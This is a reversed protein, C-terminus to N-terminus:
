RLRNELTSGGSPDAPMMESLGPVADHDHEAGEAAAGAGGVTTVIADPIEPTGEHSNYLGLKALQEQDRHLEVAAYDGPTQLAEFKQFRYQAANPVQPSDVVNPILRPEPPVTKQAFFPQKYAANETKYLFQYIGTCVLESLLITVALGVGWQALPKFNVDREEHGHEVSHALTGQPTTVLPVPHHDGDESRHQLDAM